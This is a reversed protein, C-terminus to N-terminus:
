PQHEQAYRVLARLNETPTLPSVECGGSVIYYAGAAKHCRRAAEYVQKSTATLLEGTTSVNGLVVRGQGLWARAKALDVDSDIDVIDVPLHGIRALLPEIQGCMHLRMIATTHRHKIAEVIRKQRPFLFRDYLETDIGAAASDGIGITDAGSRIQADAYRVAVEATFDLLDNAFSPDNLLDATLRETGRLGAALSFAGSVWGVVSQGPGGKARLIEIAKIRDHMRGGGFPDPVRFERLKVPLLLAAQDPNVVPGLENSWQVSDQGAIDIVERAADSRLLLSDLQFDEAVKLQAAALKRGDKTYELYTMGAYKAAFRTVIPQVALHDVARGALTNRVREISNM